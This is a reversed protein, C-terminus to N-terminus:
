LACRALLGAILAACPTALTTASLQAAVSQPFVILDEPFSPGSQAQVGTRIIVYNEHNLAVLDRVAKLKGSRDKLAVNYKGQNVAVVSNFRLKETRPHGQREEFVEPTSQASGTYTDFVAVESNVLNGFVHSEFSVATSLPDHRHIILLLLADSNPLDNISFAGLSADGIKFELRNGERLPSRVDQCTMYPMPETLLDSDRYVHIASTYPFANCLRLRHEFEVAGRLSSEERWEFARACVFLLIFLKM